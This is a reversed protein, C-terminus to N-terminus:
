EEMRDEVWMWGDLRGGMWGGMKGGMGEDLHGDMGGGNFM